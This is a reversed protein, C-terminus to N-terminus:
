LLDPKKKIISMYIALHGKQELIDKYKIVLPKNLHFM